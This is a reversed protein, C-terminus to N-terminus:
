GAPRSWRWEMRPLSRPRMATMRWCVADLVAETDKLAFYCHGSGHRKFGSVEGRVRVYGFGDEISRRLAASLESVTYEVVNTALPAATGLLDNMAMHYGVAPALAIRSPCGSASPEVRGRLEGVHRM